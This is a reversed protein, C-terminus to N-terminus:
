QAWLEKVNKPCPLKKIIEKKIPDPEIGNESVIHGLFKLKNEFFKCKDLQIKLGWDEIRAFIELLRLRHEQLTNSVIIVDDLYAYVGPIGIILKDMLKQFIAPASKVGFPLRRQVQFLGKHTNICTLKKSFEDLEIQLYADRLDLQSFIKSGHIGAWIEAPSPLPHRNLELSANLGTSYDMCVRIKGNAKKVALIPATWDAFEIPKIAGLKQLRNLEQEIADKVGIPVPRAKVFIPKVGPKLELHAKTKTCHGLGDSFVQKFKNKLEIEINTKMNEICEIALVNEIQTDKITTVIPKCLKQELKVIWPLGFLNLKEKTVHALLLEKVGDLEVICYFTGIIKIENGTFSKGSYKTEILRPCGISKWTNESICSIQAGSDLIFEVEIGNLLVKKTLWDIDCDSEIRLIQRNPKEIEKNEKCYKPKRWFKIKELLKGM